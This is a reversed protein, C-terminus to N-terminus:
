IEASERNPQSMSLVALRAALVFFVLQACLSRDVRAGSCAGLVGSVSIGHCSLHLCLQRWCLHQAPMELLNDAAQWLLLTHHKLGLQVGNSPAHSPQPSPLGDFSLRCHWSPPTSALTSCTLVAALVVTRAQTLKPASSSVSGSGSGSGFGALLRASSSGSIRFRPFCLCLWLRAPALLPALVPIQVSTPARLVTQHHSQPQRLPM